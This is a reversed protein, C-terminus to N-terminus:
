IMNTRKLIMDALGGMGCGVELVGRSGLTKLSRFVQKFLAYYRTRAYPLLYSGANGGSRYIEDYSAPTQSAKRM